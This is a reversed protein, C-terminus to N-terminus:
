ALVCDSGRTLGCRRLSFQFSKGQLISLIHVVGSELTVCSMPLVVVSIIKTINLTECCDDSTKLIDCGGLFSIVYTIPRAVMLSSGIEMEKLLQAINCTM